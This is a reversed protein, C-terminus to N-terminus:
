LKAKDKPENNEIIYDLVKHMLHARDVGRVNHEHYPYVFEDFQKKDEILAYTFTVFHQPVVTSDNLDHILLLKGQLNDVYNKLDAEKYGEPNAQPTDMYRETYMVEYYRWDTVAGGAVGVNFTGPEKLMLSCTMFGGFSWGHVALRDGDVYPLSKLYKVGAMQDKVELNGLHRFIAHEFNKSRNDSGRGDVTFVLYGQQAMWYMWLPAGNLWRDTVLQVHPGNYVYVLVPYKKTSDFNSPKIMRAYLEIGADDKITFVSAKGVNYDALPNPATLLKDKEKGKSTLVEQVRPVDGASWTDLLYEGDDSLTANHTGKDEGLQEMKGSSMSVRYLLTQTPLGTGKFYLYKGDPDMGIVEKVVVNGDTLKRVLKGDTSYLYLHMHGDMESFWVFRDKLGQFFLAGHLPDIWTPDKETFLTKEFDGTSSNYRNLNVENQDRNIEAIYVAKGDPSWTLNTLYHDAPGTTKLYVTQGTQLNYVGVKPKESPQGAMPYKFSRMSATRTHYDIRPYDSVQSEDKQYFALQNGSPSWFTGKTIGFEERGIAQGSVINRDNFDTVAKAPKLGQKIYLNNNITYALANASAEYDKHAGEDFQLRYSAKKDDFSYSVINNGNYFYITSSNLWHISPISKLEKADISKLAENLDNLTLKDKPKKGIEQTFIAEGKKSDAIFSFQDTQPIWQLQDLKAPALTTNKKLVADDLSLTKKQAHSQLVLFLPLFLLCVRKM